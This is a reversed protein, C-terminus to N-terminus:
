KQYALICNHDFVHRAKLDVRTPKELKITQNRLNIMIYENTIYINIVTKKRGGEREREREGRKGM